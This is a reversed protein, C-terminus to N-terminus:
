HGLEHAITPYNHFYGYDTVTTSLIIEKNEIKYKFLNNMFLALGIAAHSSILSDDIKKGLSFKKDDVVVYHKSTYDFGGGNNMYFLRQRTLFVVADYSDLSIKNQRAKLFSIIKKNACKADMKKVIVRGDFWTHRCENLFTFSMKKTGIIIGAINIQVKTEKLKSYLMDVGNFLTIVYSVITTYKDSEDI